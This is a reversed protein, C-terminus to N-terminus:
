SVIRMNSLTQIEEKLINMLILTSHASPIEEHSQNNEQYFLPKIKVHKYKDSELYKLYHNGSDIRQLDFYLTSIVREGVFRPTWKELSPGGRRKQHKKLMEELVGQSKWKKITRKNM